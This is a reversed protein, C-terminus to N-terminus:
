ELAERDVVVGDPGIELVMGEVVPVMWEGGPGRIVLVDSGAHFIEEVRGFARGEADRAEVGIVDHFYFEGPATEPLDARTV